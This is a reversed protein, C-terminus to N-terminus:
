DQVVISTDISCQELVAALDSRELAICGATAGYDSRALHLFIASGRGPVPPADNFGLVVVADYLGDKRWMFECRAPYPIKVPRNYLSDEPDDCWGDNESLPLLPLGTKVKAWRDPRYLLRRMPWSGVPTAGDGEMKTRTLGARGIACRMSRTGLILIGSHPHSGDQRVYIEELPAAM